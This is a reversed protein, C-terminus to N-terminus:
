RPTRLELGEEALPGAVSSARAWLPISVIFDYAICQTIATEHITYRRDPVNYSVFKM